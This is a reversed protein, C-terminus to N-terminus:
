KDGADIEVQQHLAQLVQLLIYLVSQLLLAFAGPHGFFLGHLLYSAFGTRQLPKPIGAGYFPLVAAFPPADHDVAFRDLLEVQFIGGEPLILKRNVSSDSVEADSPRENRRIM